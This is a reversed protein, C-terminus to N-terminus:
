HTEHEIRRQEPHMLDMGTCVDEDGMAKDHMGCCERCQFYTRERLHLPPVQRMAGIAQIIEGCAPRDTRLRHAILSRIGAAIRTVPFQREAIVSSYITIVGPTWEPQPFAVAVPKLLQQIEHETAPSKKKM